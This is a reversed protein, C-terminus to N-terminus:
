NEWRCWCLCSVFHSPWFCITNWNKINRKTVNVNTVRLMLWKSNTVLIRRIKAMCWERESKAYLHTSIYYIALFYQFIALRKLWTQWSKYSTQSVAIAPFFWLTTATFSRNSLDIVSSAFCKWVNWSSINKKEIKKM